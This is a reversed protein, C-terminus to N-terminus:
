VICGGVVGVSNSIDNRGGVVLCLITIVGCKWHTMGFVVFFVFNFEFM